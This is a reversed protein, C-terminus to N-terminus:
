RKEYDFISKIGLNRLYAECRKLGRSVHHEVTAESVRLRAAVEKQALGHLKRLVIIERTLDPLLALARALLLIKEQQDILESADPREELASLASLDAVATVPSARERRVSDLAVRRALTFLFGKASRISQTARLKWIRLYSEQVVDDIDRLHPFSRRVYAKLSSDHTQVEQAFWRAQDAVPSSDSTSPTSV